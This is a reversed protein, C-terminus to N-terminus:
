GLHELIESHAACGNQTKLRNCRIVNNRCLNRGRFNCYADEDNLLVWWFHQIPNKGDDEQLPVHTGTALDAMMYNGAMGISGKVRALPQIHENVLEQMFRERGLNDVTGM